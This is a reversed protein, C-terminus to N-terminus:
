LRPLGLTGLARLLAEVDAETNYGQVSLRLLPRGNWEFCPVEIRHEEWLRRQVEDPDGPPLEVAAMQGFPRAVAELGSAELFREVLAHCRERVDDWGWERQFEIAAPVALWAAPDRTGSRGHRAAFAAEDWGWSVVLPDIREQLEPRVWLFGAGKPACLWKHCNGAYADAGIADLDVPVHGPGHAGDVVVLIGRERARRCHEEVPVVAGTPSTVHSISLVRTRETAHEWLSELPARVLTAGAAQWALEVAGYEQDSVLVEDGPRALSRALTNMGTTANTVFVLDQARAGVYAALAARAEALLGDWRRALLEVPERELELQWRQYAEFVPRPCAGFSGHNLYVVQPDLLFQDRLPV